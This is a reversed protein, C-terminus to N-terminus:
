LKLAFYQQSVNKLFLIFHIIFALRITFHIILCIVTVTLIFINNFIFHQTLITQESMLYCFVSWRWLLFLMMFRELTLPTTTLIMIPILNISICNTYIISHQAQLTPTMLFILCVKIQLTINHAGM